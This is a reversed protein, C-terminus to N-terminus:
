TSLHGGSVFEQKCSDLVRLMFANRHTPLMIRDGFSRSIEYIMMNAAADEERFGKLIIESPEDSILTYNALNACFRSFIHFNTLRLFSSNHFYEQRKLKDILAMISNTMLIYYKNVIKSTNWMKSTLWHQVFIKYRDFDYEDVYLTNAYFTFRSTVPAKNEHKCYNVRYDSNESMITGFSGVNKFMGKDIDYYGKSVCWTRIFELVNTKLNGQLHIDDIM